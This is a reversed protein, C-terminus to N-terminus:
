KLLQAAKLQNKNLELATARLTRFNFLIEGLRSELKSYIEILGVNLKHEPDVILLELQHMYLTVDNKLDTHSIDLKLLMELDQESFQVVSPMQFLKKLYELESDLFALDSIWKKNVLYLEQLETNLEDDEVITKM